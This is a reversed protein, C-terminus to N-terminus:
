PHTGSWCTLFHRKPILAQVHCIKQIEPLQIILEANKWGFKKGQSDYRKFKLSNRKFIYSFTWFTSVVGGRQVGVLAITGGKRVLAADLFDHLIAYYKFPKQVCRSIRTQVNKCMFIALIVEFLSSLFNHVFLSACYTLVLKIKKYNFRYLQFRWM